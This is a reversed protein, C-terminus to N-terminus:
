LVYKLEKAPTYYQFEGKFDKIYIEGEELFLLNFRPEKSSISLM